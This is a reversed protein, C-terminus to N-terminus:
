YTGVPKYSQKIWRIKGVKQQDLVEQNAEVFNNQIMVWYLHKM